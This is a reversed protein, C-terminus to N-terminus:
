EITLLNSINEFEILKLHVTGVNRIDMKIEVPLCNKDGTFWITVDDNNKFMRGVEVIPCIKLCNMMGFKTKVTEMGLYNFQFPYIADAFYMNISITDGEDVKSFDLRRIYYFASTLDLIKAPVAHVGSLKSTVTNNKRNYTVENYLDYKGESINRIQKYPLTSKKNFWSEYIDKVSYLKDALGTTQGIAVAHFVPQGQYLTDTLSFRTIGAVIIGYRIQYTLNEGASFVIDKKFNPIIVKQAKTNLTILFIILFILIRTNM